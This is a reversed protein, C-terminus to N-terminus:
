SNLTPVFCVSPQAAKLVWVASFPAPVRKDLLGASFLLVCAAPETEERLQFSELLCRGNGRSESKWNQQPLEGEM